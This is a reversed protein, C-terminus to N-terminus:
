KLDAIELTASVIRRQAEASYLDKGCTLAPDLSLPESTSILGQWAISVRYRGNADDYSVCGRAGMMAGVATGAATESAGKLLADLADLDALARAQLQATGWATCTAPTNNAHGVYPTGTAADTIAYCRAAKRNANIRQVFDSLLILAQTRQYSELEAQHSRVQVGLLGLLGIVIIVLTIMVELLSFGASRRRRSTCEAM